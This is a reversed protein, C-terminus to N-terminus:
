RARRLYSSPSMGVVTKFDRSFHSQDAYGLRQALDALRQGGEGVDVIADLAALADHLRYRRILWRPSLGLADACFRQLERIHLGSDDVLQEVRTLSRDDRARAVIRMLLGQDAPPAAPLVAAWAADVGDVVADVGDGVADVAAFAGAVVAAVDADVVADLDVVADVLDRMRKRVLLGRFAGPLFKTAVVRGSGALVWTFRGRTPGTVSVRGGVALSVHVSPHSLTHAEQTAGPPMQWAVTWHHEVFPATRPSPLLRQHEFREPDVGTTAGVIGRPAETKTRAM